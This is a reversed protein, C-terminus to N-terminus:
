YVFELGWIWAAGMDQAWAYLDNPDGGMLSLYTFLELGQYLNWAVGVMSLASGDLPSILARAQLSLTESPSFSLEPFLYLGYEPPQRGAAQADYDYLSVADLGGAERWRAGPRVAAELRASLVRGRGLQRLTFLGVSLDVWEPWAAWHPDVTPINAAASLYWDVGLHGQLNFYPRHEGAPGSGFYGSELKIQGLRFVGRVGGALEDPAVPSLLASLDTTLGGAPPGLLAPPSGPAPPYPVLVGELYSFPGLPVYVATLWTTEDRLVSEGLGGSLLDMSGFVVDGANFVFGDGWSVRTKGVTLRFWPLRVKVYARPLALTFSEGVWGDLQLFGRVNENGASELELSGELLALLAAADGSRVVAGYGTLTVSSRVEAGAAPAAGAALLILLGLAAAGRGPRRRGAEVKVV